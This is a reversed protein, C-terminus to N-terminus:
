AKLIKETLTNLGLDNLGFRKVHFPQNTDQDMGIQTIIMDETLIFKKWENQSTLVEYEFGVHFESLGPTYYKNKEM